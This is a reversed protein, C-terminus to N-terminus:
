YIAIPRGPSGTAGKFRIPTFIFLFEHVDDALIEEFNMFELNFIGNQTILEHHVGVQNPPDGGTDSGIMAVKKEILWQVVKADIGPFNFNTYREKDEIVRWWGFNFLVADGPSISGEDINQKALAKKVEEISVVYGDPLTDKKKYGAIDILIGRTIYPKVNEVGLKRLEYPSRMEELTFGNYFVDQVTGDAMKMRKGVHGPGDFQTGVQGIEACLFEDNYVLGSGELPGGTPTGPIFMSYSRQGLLPMGRHYPFGLEYVKGKKVMSLSQLIKEPTIWNSGGAQDEAGWIPHPWWPGEKRTQASAISSLLLIFLIVFTVHSKQSTQTM